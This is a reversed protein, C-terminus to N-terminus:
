AVEFFENPRQADIIFDFINLVIALGREVMAEAKATPLNTRKVVVQVLEAKESETLDLAEKGAEKLNPNQGIVNIAVDGVAGLIERTSVKGDKNADINVIKDVAIGVIQAAPKLNDIGLLNQEESMDEFNQNLFLNSEFSRSKQDSSSSLQKARKWTSSVVQKTAAVQNELTKLQNFLMAQANM